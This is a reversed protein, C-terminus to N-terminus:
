LGGSLWTWVVVDSMVFRNQESVKIKSTYTKQKSIQVHVSTMYHINHWLLGAKFKPTVLHWISSLVPHFWWVVGCWVVGCWVMAHSYQTFWSWPLVLNRFWSKLVMLNRFRSVLNRFWPSTKKSGRHHKKPVVTINKQSGDKLFWRNKILFELWLIGFDCDCVFNRPVVRVCWHFFPFIFSLLPVVSNVVMSIVSVVISSSLPGYWWLFVVWVSSWM